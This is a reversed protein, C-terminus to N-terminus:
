EWTMWGKKTALWADMEFHADDLMESLKEDTSAFMRFIQEPTHKPAEYLNQSSFYLLPIDKHADRILYADQDGFNYCVDRDDPHIATAYRTCTGEKYRACDRCTLRIYGNKEYESVTLGADDLVVDTMDIEHFGSREFYPAPMESLWGICGDHIALQRAKEVMACVNEIESEEVAFHRSVYVGDRDFNLMVMKREPEEAIKKIARMQKLNLRHLRSENKYLWMDLEMWELHEAAAKEDQFLLRRDGYDTHEKLYNSDASFFKFRIDRNVTVFKRGVSSVTVEKVEPQKNSGRNETLMYANQGQKFEKMDM